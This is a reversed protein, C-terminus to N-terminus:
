QTQEFIVPDLAPGKEPRCNLEKVTYSVILVAMWQYSKVMAARHPDDVPTADAAALCGKAQAAIESASGCAALRSAEWAAWWKAERDKKVREECKPDRLDAHGCRQAEAEYGELAKQPGELSLGSGFPGRASWIANLQGVCMQLQMVPDSMPNLPRPPGPKAPAVPPSASEPPVTVAKSEAAVRADLAKWAECSKEDARKPFGFLQLAAAPTLPGAGPAKPPPLSCAHPPPVPRPREPPPGSPEDVGSWFEEQAQLRSRLASLKAPELAKLKAAAAAGQARTLGPSARLAEDDSEDDEERHPGALWAIGADFLAADEPRSLAYLAAGIGEPADRDNFNGRVAELRPRTAHADSTLIELAEARTSVIAGRVMPSHRCAFPAPGDIWVGFWTAGGDYSYALAHGDRAAELQLKGKRLVQFVPDPELEEKGLKGDLLLAPGQPWLALVLDYGTSPGGVPSLVAQNDFAVSTLLAEQWRGGKPLTLRVKGRQTDAGASAALLSLALSFWRTARM